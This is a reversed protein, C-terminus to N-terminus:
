PKRFRVLISFIDEKVTPGYMLVDNLALGSTTRASGDFVVRTKSTLSSSKLMPHHPLYYVNKLLEEEATVERMHGMDLYEKMFKVYEVRLQHDRQVRQLRREINIFRSTAMALSAGLNQMEPKTPLRLVFRGDERRSVSKQFHRLTEEEEECRQNAKSGKGYQEKDALVTKWDSEMTEGLSNIGLLCTVELGGTVIWGLKSEQLSLNGIGM